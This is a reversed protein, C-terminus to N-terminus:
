TTTRRGISPTRSLCQISSTSRCLSCTKPRCNWGTPTLKREPSRAARPPAPQPAPPPSVPPATPAACATTHTRRRRPPSRTIITWDATTFSTATSTTSSETIAATICSPPTRALTLRATTLATRLATATATIGTHMTTTGTAETRVTRRMTTRTTTITGMTLTTGVMDVTHETHISFIITAMVTTGLTAMGTDTITLTIVMVMTTPGTRETLAMATIRRAATTATRTTSM